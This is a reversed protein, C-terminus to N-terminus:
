PSRRMSRTSACTHSEGNVARCEGCVARWNLVVTDGEAVHTVRSGIQEVVATAEHGLLFPYDDNIGGDRYALDTHCVGCTKISVIVDNDGPEPIVIDTLEVPEKKARSIVGKVTQSAATM